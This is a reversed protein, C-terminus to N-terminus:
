ILKNASDTHIVFWVMFILRNCLYSALDLIGKCLKLMGVKGLTHVNVIAKYFVLVLDFFEELNVVISEICSSTFHKGLLILNTVM